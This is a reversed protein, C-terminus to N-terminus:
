YHEGVCIDDPCIYNAKDAKTIEEAALFDFEKIYFFSLCVEDIYRVCHHQSLNLKKYGDTQRDHKNTDIVAASSKM